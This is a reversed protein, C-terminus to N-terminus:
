PKNGSVSEHGVGPSPGAIEARGLTRFSTFKHGVGPSPGSKKVTELSLGGILGEEIDKVAGGHMSPSSLPRAEAECNLMSLLLFGLLLITFFTLSKHKRSLSSM